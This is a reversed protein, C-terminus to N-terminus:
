CMLKRCTEQIQGSIPSVTYGTLLYVWYVPQIAGPVPPKCPNSFTLLLRPRFYFHKNLTVGESNPLNAHHHKKPNKKNIIPSFIGKLCNKKVM